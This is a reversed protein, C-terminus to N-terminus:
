NKHKLKGSKNCNEEDSSDDNSSELSFNPGSNQDLKDALNSSNLDVSEDDSSIFAAKAIEETSLRKPYRRSPM